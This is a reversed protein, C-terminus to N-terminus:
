RPDDYTYADNKVHSMMPIHTMTITLGYAYTHKKIRSIMPRHTM